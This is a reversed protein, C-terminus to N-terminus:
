TFGTLDDLCCAQLAVRSGAPPVLCWVTCARYEPGLEWGGGWVLCPGALWGAEARWLRETQTSPRPRKWCPGRQKNM